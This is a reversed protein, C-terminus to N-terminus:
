DKNKSLSVRCQYPRTEGGPCWIVLIDKKGIIYPVSIPHYMPKLATHGLNLLEKQIKDLQNILLGKPPLTPVGNIEAIGVIIYGGGLNHFDNAFACISHLIDEPNWGEKFEIREWEVTHGHILENISIPLALNNM